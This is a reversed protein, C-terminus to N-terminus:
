HSGRKGRLDDLWTEIRVVRSNLCNEGTLLATEIKRTREDTIQASKHLIGFAYAVMGVNVLVSGFLGLMFLVNDLGM